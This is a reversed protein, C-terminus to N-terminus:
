REDMREVEVEKVSVSVEKDRRRRGERIVRGERGIKEGVM